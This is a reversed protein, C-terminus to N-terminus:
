VRRPEKLVKGGKVVVITTVLMMLVLCLVMLVSVSVKTVKWSVQLVNQTM